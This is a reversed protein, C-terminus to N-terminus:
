EDPTIENSESNLVKHIVGADLLEQKTPIWYDNIKTEALLKDIFSQQIGNDAFKTFDNEMIEEVNFDWGLYHDELVPLHFLLYSEDALYRKNGALFAITGASVCHKLSYTDLDYKGILKALQRGEYSRGGTTDLIIGKIGPNSTIIRSVDQSLGYGMSGEFHILTDDQKLTLTYQAHPDKFFSRKFAFKYAPIAVIQIPITLLVGVIVIFRVTIVSASAGYKKSHNNTSRWLGVIRWPYTVLFVVLLILSFRAAQIPSLYAKRGTLFFSIVRFLIAVSLYNIWFSLALSLQGKWHKKFYNM